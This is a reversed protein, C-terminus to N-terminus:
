FINLADELDLKQCITNKEIYSFHYQKEHHNTLM